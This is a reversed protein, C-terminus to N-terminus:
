CSSSLSLSTVGTTLCSDAGESSLLMIVIHPLKVASTMTKATFIMFTDTKLIFGYFSGPRTGQTPYNIGILAEGGGGTTDLHQPM